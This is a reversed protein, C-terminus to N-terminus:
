GRSNATARRLGLARTGVWVIGWCLSAPRISRRSNQLPATARTADEVTEDDITYGTESMADSYIKSRKDYRLVAYGRSSLGEALDEFMRTAFLSENRDNPGPGHVLVLGPVKSKAVPVTLIGGLKWQDAGVTVEREHFTEPKSYSPRQWTDPLPKDPPRFFMGIVQRSPNLTFQIHISTNAFRVPFSVLNNAGDTGLVPQGIDQPEGFGKLEVSVRQQLFELTITQKFNDSFM